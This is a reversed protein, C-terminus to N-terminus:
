VSKTGIWSTALIIQLPELDEFPSLKTVITVFGSTLVTRIVSTAISAEHQWIRSDYSKRYINPARSVELWTVGDIRRTECRKSVPTSDSVSPTPTRFPTPTAPVSFSSSTQEISEVVSPPM